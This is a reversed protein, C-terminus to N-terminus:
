EEQILSALVLIKLFPLFFPGALPVVQVLTSVYFVFFDTTVECAKILVSVSHSVHGGIVM